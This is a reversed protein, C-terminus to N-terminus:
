KRAMKKRLLKYSVVPIISLFLIIGAFAALRLSPNEIFSLRRINLFSYVFMQALFIEYSYTGLLSLIREVATDKLFDYMKRLIFFFLLSYAYMPWHYGPWFDCILPTFRVPSYVDVLCCGLSIIGLVCVVPTLRLQYRTALCGLYLLFLYRYFALRYVDGNAVFLSTAIELLVCVVVFAPLTIKWSFRRVAIVILPLVLWCQAYIWPYYSGPGFGGQTFLTHWDVDGKLAWYILIQVATMGLFPKFVRHFLKAFSPFRYYDAVRSSALKCFTLVSSVLLFLPVAQGIHVIAGIQENPLCHLFIVALIAFGKIFDLYPIHKM